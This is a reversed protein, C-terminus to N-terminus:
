PRAASSGKALFTEANLPFIVFAGDDWVPASRARLIKWLAGDSEAFPGKKESAIFRAGARRLEEIRAAAQDPALLGYDDSWGRRDLYYLTVSTAPNNTVFLDEPRSVAAAAEHARALYDWGQGYWHAIRLTAHVPVAAVLLALGAAAWARRPPAVAGARKWLISLGEGMLGATGVALPLCSYEHIQAYSGLAILHAFTGGLLAIWFPDRRRALVERAGYFFLVLGAYTAILEPFRSVLLYEAYYFLRLDYGLFHGFEKGHTPVVFVGSSAYVYWALVGGMALLGAAWTRADTLAARDLRRWSLAALPILVHVYPLKLGAALFASVVAALWPGAPRSPELSLEWFYLAGVFGLLAAAEPQVTRGFYIEIPLVTFLAAGWFGAETGFEREFLLFLLLATLASAVASLVRGWAEGLGFLPWLKGHLWMEVPLETAALRDEPGAWDIRPKLLPQSYRSYSRAISATNVQRHYHYDLLPARIGKAHVALSLACVAAALWARRRGAPKM